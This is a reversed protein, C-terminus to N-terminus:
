AKTEDLSIEESKRSDFIAYRSEFVWKSGIHMFGILFAAMCMSGIVILFVYGRPVFKRVLELNTGDQRVYMANQNKCLDIVNATINTKDVKCSFLCLDEVKNMCYSNICSLANMTSQISSNKKLFVGAVEEISLGRAIECGSARRAFDVEYKSTFIAGTTITLAGITFLVITSVLLAIRRTKPQECIM